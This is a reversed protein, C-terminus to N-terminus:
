AREDATAPKLGYERIAAERSVYGDRLDRALAERDRNEPNGWGGGGGTRSSVVDDKALKLASAKRIHNEGETEPNIVVEGTAGARGGYLGWPPCTTRENTTTMRASPDLIRYDRIQGLGGRHEGPAGSDQRVSYREVRLPYKSEIVEVPVNRTDGDAICILMSEGDSEAHAGWGGGQPEAHIYPKGSEPDTGWIFLTGLDAFHGAPITEPLAEALAKWVTDCLTIMPLGYVGAPTPEQANYMCDDPVLVTLPAFSGENAPEFPAAICKLAVRCASITSPLGCNMPGVNQPASGALDITMTEGAVTVTVCVRPKEVAVGDDDLHAEARYVGDPMRAIAQRTSREGQELIERIALEVTESGWRAVIAQLRQEGTRGAALQARLDGLVSDAYRVNNRLIRMISENLEGAEYLRVSRLRIGEQYIETTDSLWGGPDRAGVDLWHARSATFGVLRREDTYVPTIATVDNLHTGAAYTDNILYVDGPEFREIGVDDIVVRVAEGLNGLFFPLGAAQSVINGQADFLGVSFDLVEYIIPNYSTRTLNIKMEDAAAIFAQRIVELTIPDIRQEVSASV